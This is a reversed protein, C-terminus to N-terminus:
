IASEYKAKLSKGYTANKNKVASNPILKVVKRYNDEIAKLLVSKKELRWSILCFAIATAIVSLFVTNVGYKDLSVAVFIIAMNAVVLILTSKIHSFDLRLMRHHLHNNDGAFPNLGKHLRIITVRVADFLPLIFIALIIAPASYFSVSPAVVLNLENFRIALIALLLGITLSGTDGMFIKFRGNYVNFPLFACLAGAVSAAIISYGFDGAIWFWVALLVTSLIGISTALGDIGDILNFANIILIIVFVSVIISLWVPLMDIGLFGHLNTIRIEAVVVILLASLIEVTLKKRPSMTILDDKIGMAFIMFSSAAIVTIHEVYGNAFLMLSIFFGTFMAIGGLTPIQHSHIKRDGPKDSLKKIIAVAVIKPIIIVTLCCAVLFSGVVSAIADM